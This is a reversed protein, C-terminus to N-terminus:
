ESSYLRKAWFKFKRFEYVGLGIFALTVMLGIPLLMLAKPVLAFYITLFILYGIAGVFGRPILKNGIKAYHKFAFNVANATLRPVYYKDGRKDVIGLRKMDALCQNILAKNTFGSFYRMEDVTCGSSRRILYFYLRLTEGKLERRVRALDIKSRVMSM